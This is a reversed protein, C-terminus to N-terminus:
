LSESGSESLPAPDEEEDEDTHMAYDLLESDIFDDYNDSRLVGERKLAHYLILTASRPGDELPWHNIRVTSEMRVKDVALFRTTGTLGDSLEYDVLQKKM